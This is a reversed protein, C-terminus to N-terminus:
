DPVTLDSGDLEQLLQNWFAKQSALRKKGTELAPETNLSIVTKEQWQIATTAYTILQDITENGKSM